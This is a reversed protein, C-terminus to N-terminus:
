CGNRSADIIEIGARELPTGLTAASIFSTNFGRATFEAM